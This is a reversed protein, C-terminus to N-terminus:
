GRTVLNICDFNMGNVKICCVSTVIRPISTFYYSYYPGEEVERDSTIYADLGLRRLHTLLMMRIDSELYEEDVKEGEEGSGRGHNHSTDTMEHHSREKDKM